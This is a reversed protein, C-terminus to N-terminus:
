SRSDLERLAENGYKTIHWTKDENIILPKYFDIWEHDDILVGYERRSMYNLTGSLQPYVVTTRRPPSMRTKNKYQVRLEEIDHGYTVPEIGLVNAIEGRSLPKEQLARLIIEARSGKRM